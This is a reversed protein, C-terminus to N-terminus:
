ASAEEPTEEAPLALIGSELMRGIEAPAYGLGALIAAGGEGIRPPQRRLTIAAGGLNLPTMPLLARVTDTLATEGMVGGALLHPDTFLDEPHAVPACPIFAARCRELVTAVPLGSFIRELEPMIRDRGAVRQGNSAALDPDQALAEPLSFAACLRQWHQDSTVGVFVQGDQAQFVDYVAWTIRRATMPPVRQGAIAGAAMHQGVLFALSEFLASQVKQGQGTQERQRLAALIGVVGFVGGMIDVVSTGARMPRGPLGTMYALGGQMQVVEDLAPLKEYPGPLYGKLACYILRPNIARLDEYGLGLREMTDPAFNELLIDATAVLKLLVARGEAQKLDLALSTKNRNFAGFFGTGFGGLRRTRDGAPPEIRIVEAGLDALVVGCTPGMVTHGFDLVRLGALPLDTEPSQSSM